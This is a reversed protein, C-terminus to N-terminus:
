SFAGEVDRTLVFGKVLKTDVVGGGLIKAVRVNDVSFTLGTKPLIQICAQAVLPALLDERGHQKAALVTKLCHAVQVPDRPNELKHVTLEPGASSNFFFVLCTLGRLLICLSLLLPPLLFASELLELVKKGAQAYGTIIDAPHLGTRILSEAHGLLEGGFVLM